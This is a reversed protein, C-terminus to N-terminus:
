PEVPASRSSVAPAGEPRRGPGNGATEISRLAAGGGADPVVEWAAAARVLAADLDDLSTTTVFAQPLEAIRRVLHARREPDLESFVDDLLLLPPRGDQATLLDLEALKFALIATRQQGRSAFGSMDRGEREFVLDDRHPGVLTSGNWVEKDATEALRRALADRPSEGPLTPANTVYGITLRAAGAEDPAIERHAQAVPEALDELLRRREAVIAGGADLFSGDWFRLEDRGAQEERIARLLSNRQQLTRAYAALDRAYAASRQSALQDLAARRLGPSGVVLLMEEPAFVVTRLLGMLGAARRAVGNVRIRKRAGSGGTRRVLAVEVTEGGAVGEIRALESGWRVLEADTSTRHSRGWALLVIAELLTTKGAANPGVILQPGSGFAAELSTYSRLDRVSISHLTGESAVSLGGLDL